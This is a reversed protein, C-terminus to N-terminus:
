NPKTVSKTAAKGNAGKNANSLLMISIRDSAFLNTVTILLGLAACDFSIPIHYLTKYITDLIEQTVFTQLFCFGNFFTTLVSM